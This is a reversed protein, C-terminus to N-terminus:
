SYQQNLMIRFKLSIKAPFCFPYNGKQTKILRLQKKLFAQFREKNYNSQSYATFVEPFNHMKGLLGMRLWLDYDEALDDQDTVFGGAEIAAERQFMVTSTFFNNRFLMTSRIQKDTEARFKSNQIKFKPIQEYNRIEGLPNIVIGGGVLVYDQHQDLFEAQKKLKDEDVWEDDDDLIAVYDGRSALLAEQRSQTIGTSQAHSIIKLDKFTLDKLVTEAEDTSGDNVVVMECDKLTQREASLLARRLLASRNKTLINISVRPM